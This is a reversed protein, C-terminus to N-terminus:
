YISETLFNEAKAIISNPDKLFSHEWLVMVAWGQRRLTSIVKKDRARNKKLKQKWFENPLVHEWCPLRWGHWFDSHIFIAKKARPLAIDPKGIVKNYHTKFRLGRKRLEKFIRLEFGTNTSRIKSMIKSRQERSLRDM